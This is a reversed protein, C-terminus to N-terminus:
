SPKSGSHNFSDRIGSANRSTYLRPIGPTSSVDTLATGAVDTLVAGGVATLQLSSLINTQVLAPYANHGDSRNLGAHFDGGISTLNGIPGYPFGLAPWLSQGGDDGGARFKLYWVAGAAAVSIGALWALPLGEHKPTRAVRPMSFHGPLLPQRHQLM